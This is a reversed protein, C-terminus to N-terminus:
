LISSRYGPPLNNCSVTSHLWYQRHRESCFIYTIDKAEYGPAGEHVVVKNNEYGDRECTDWGCMIHTGGRDHNIVKKQIIAHMQLTTGRVPM